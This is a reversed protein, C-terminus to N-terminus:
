EYDKAKVYSYSYSKHGVPVFEIDNRTEYPEYPDDVFFTKKRYKQTFMKELQECQTRNCLIHQKTWWMRPGDKQWSRAGRGGRARIWGGWNLRYFRETAMPLDHRKDDYYGVYVTQFDDGPLKDYETFDPEHLIRTTQKKKYGAVSTYNLLATQKVPGLDNNIHLISDRAVAKNASNVWPMLNLSSAIRVSHM